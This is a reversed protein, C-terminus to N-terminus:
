KTTIAKIRTLEEHILRTVLPPMTSCGDPKERTDYHDTATDYIGATAVVFRWGGLNHLQTPVWTASRGESLLNRKGSSGPWGMLMAGDADRRVYEPSPLVGVLQAAQGETMAWPPTKFFYWSAACIGYVRPAFQAVNLYMELIRRDSLVLAFQTAIIAEQAKRQPTREPGLFLNKVLQQHITSGSPDRKGKLYAEIRARFDDGDFAGQRPGFQQDEHAIVAAVMYRSIHDMSVYQYAVPQEKNQAMYATRSPTVWNYSFTAILSAIVVAALLSICWVIFRLFFHKNRRRPSPTVSTEM